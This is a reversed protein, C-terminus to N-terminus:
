GEPLYPLRASWKSSGSSDSRRYMYWRWPTTIMFRWMYQWPIWWWNKTGIQNRWKSLYPRRKSQHQTVVQHLLAGPVCSWLTWSLESSMSITVDLTDEQKMHTQRYPRLSTTSNDTCVLEIELRTIAGESVYCHYLQCSSWCSRELFVLCNKCTTPM